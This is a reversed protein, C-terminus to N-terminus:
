SCEEGLRPDLWRVLAAMLLNLVMVGTVIMMVLNQVIPIDRQNVAELLLKGCGPLSFVSEVIISGTVLVPLQIGALTLVPILANPLAIRWLTGRRSYGQARATRIFDQSLTEILSSRMFRATIAAQPIALAIAPLILARIAPFFGNEWGPFGSAPLWHLILSFLFTMMMALWFDPISKFLQLVGMLGLDLAKGRNAAAIVGIPIGAGLSLLMALFILPLSSQLREVILSSVPVDYIYSRGLDGHLFGSIWHAYRAPLPTDLGLQHHLALLSEPSADLGLMVTAPDGPLLNMAAFIILSAVFLLMVRGSVMRLITVGIM